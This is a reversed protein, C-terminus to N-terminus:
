DKAPSNLQFSPSVDLSIRGDMFDYKAILGSATIKVHESALCHDEQMPSGEGTHGNKVRAANGSM